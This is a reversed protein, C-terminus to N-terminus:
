SHLHYLMPAHSNNSCDSCCCCDATRRADCGAMWGTLARGTLSLWAAGLLRWPGSADLPHNTAHMTCSNATAPAHAHTHMHMSCSPRGSLCAPRLLWGERFTASSPGSGLHLPRAQPSLAQHDAAAQGQSREQAALRQSVPGQSATQSASPPRLASDSRAPRGCSWTTSPRPGQRHWLSLTM